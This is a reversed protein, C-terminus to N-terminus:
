PAVVRSTLASVTVVRTRDLATSRLRLTGGTATGRAYFMVFVDTSYSGGCKALDVGSPATFSSAPAPDPTVGPLKYAAGEMVCTDDSTTLRDTGQNYKVLSWTTSGPTFRAGFILPHSESAVRAQVQRLQSAIDAQATELSHLLWYHRLATAGVTVLISVLFLVTLLELVTFGREASAHRLGGHQPRLCKSKVGYNDAAGYAIKVIRLSRFAQLVEATTCARM